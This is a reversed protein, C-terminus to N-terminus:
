KPRDSSSMCASSSMTPSAHRRPRANQRRSRRAPRAPATRPATAERDRRAARRQHGSRVPHAFRAQDPDGRAQEPRRLARDFPRRRARQHRLRRREIRLPPEAARQTEPRRQIVVVAIGASPNGRCQLRGVQRRQGLHRHPQERGPLPPAVASARTTALLAGSQSSSSGALPSSSALTRISSASIAPADRLRRSRAPRSADASRRAPHRASRAPRRM